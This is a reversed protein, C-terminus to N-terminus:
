LETATRNRRRGPGRRPPRRGRHKRSAWDILYARIARTDGPGLTDAFSAMGGDRYLGGLVIQDFAAMTAPNMRRLDPMPTREGAFGHCRACNAAYLAHGREVLDAAPPGAMMPLPTAQREIVSVPGGGLKLVILRGDNAFPAPAGPADPEIAVGNWGVGVAVYQVGGVSYSMPAASIGAGVEISRLLRGGDADRFQLQGDALGQVVLGGGTALVGGNMPAGLPVRWAQRGAAPDWAILFGRQTSASEAPALSAGNAGRTSCLAAPRGMCGASTRRRSTSWAAPVTPWRSGTRLLGYPSPFVLQPGKVPQPPPVPRGTALDIHDAWNVRVFTQASLLRGDTGTWCTFGNKSAQMLVPRVRGGIPLDALVLNQM